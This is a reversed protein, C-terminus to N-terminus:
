KKFGKYMETVAGFILGAAPWIVWSIHWDFTIFSYTLYIATVIVWYASSIAELRKDKNEKKYDGEQLLKAYSEERIATPIIFQMAIAVIALLAGTARVYASGDSDGIGIGVIFIPLVSMISLCVGIVMHRIYTPQYQEKENRVFAEVGYELEIIEKELYEYKSTRIGCSIFIGVAIAVIILLIVIGLMAMRDENANIFGSEACGALLILCIPSIICLAVGLGIKKSTEVKIALFDKAEKMYVRRAAEGNREKTSMESNDETESKTEKLLYDTTVEFIEALKLIKDLDPVSQASEWKSVSQRTVDVMEALEEQSWGKKKRLEIIKDALNM